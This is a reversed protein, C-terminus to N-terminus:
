FTSEETSSPISVADGTHEVGIPAEDVVSPTIVVDYKIALGDWEPRLRACGDYSELQAKRSLRTKNEVKEQLSRALRDKGLLHDISSM